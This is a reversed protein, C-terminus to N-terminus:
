QNQEHVATQTGPPPEQEQLLGAPFAEPYRADGDQGV